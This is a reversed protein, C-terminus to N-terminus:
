VLVIVENRGTTNWVEVGYCEDHVPYDPYVLGARVYLGNTRNKKVLLGFPHEVLSTAWHPLVNGLVLFFYDNQNEMDGVTPLFDPHLKAQLPMLRGQSKLNKSVEKHSNDEEDRVYAFHLTRIKFSHWPTRHLQGFLVRVPILMSHFHLAGTGPGFPSATSPCFAIRLTKCTVRIAEPDRIFRSVWRISANISGWSWTPAYNLPLGREHVPFSPIYWCLESILKTAWIGAMYGDFTPRQYQTLISALGAM